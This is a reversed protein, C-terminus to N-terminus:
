SKAKRAELMADAYLYVTDAAGEISQIEAEPHWGSDGHKALLGTLAAIAFDDRLSRRLQRNERELARNQIRLMDDEDAM